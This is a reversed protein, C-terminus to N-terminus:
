LRLPRVTTESHSTSPKPWAHLPPAGPNGKLSAAPGLAVLSTQANTEFCNSASATAHVSPQREKRDWGCLARDALVGRSDTQPLAFCRASADLRRPQRPQGALACFHRLRRSHPDMARGAIALARTCDLAAQRTTSYSFVQLRGPAISHVALLYRRQREHLLLDFPRKAAALGMAAIDAGPRANGVARM